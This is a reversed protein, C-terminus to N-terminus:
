ALYLEYQFNEELYLPLELVTWLTCRFFDRLVLRLYGYSHHLTTYVAPEFITVLSVCKGIVIEDDTQSNGICELRFNIFSNALSRQARSLDIYIYLFSYCATVLINSHRPHDSLNLACFCVFSFTWLVDLAICLTHTLISPCQSLTGPVNQEPGTGLFLVWMLQVARRVLASYKTERRKLVEHLRM